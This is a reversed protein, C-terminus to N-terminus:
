KKELKAVFGEKELKKVATDDYYSMVDVTSLDKGMAETANKFSETLLAEDISPDLTFLPAFYEYEIDQFKPTTQKSYKAIISKAQAPDNRFEVIAERTAKLFAVLVDPNEAAYKKLTIYGNSMNPISSADFIMTAGESASVDGGPPNSLAADIAGSKLAAFKASPNSLHVLEVDDLTMNAQGLVDVTAVQTLSGPTAAGLKKGRLDEVSTIGKRAWMQMPIVKLTAGFFVEDIGSLIATASATGDGEGIQISNSKIAAALASSGNLPKVDVDLGYKEFIGLEKALIVDADQATPSAIGVSVKTLEKGGDSSGDDSGSGCAALGLAMLMVSSLAVVPRQM